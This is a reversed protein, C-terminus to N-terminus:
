IENSKEKFTLLALLNWAMAVLHIQGTSEDTNYLGELQHRWFADLYREEAKDVLLWSGRDYKGFPKNNMSGLEAVKKLAPLFDQLVGAMYKGQDLKNKYLGDNGGGGSGCMSLVIKDIM